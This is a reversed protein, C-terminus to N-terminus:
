QTTELKKLAAPAFRRILGRVAACDQATKNTSRAAEQLMTNICTLSLLKRRLLVVLIVLTNAANTTFRV